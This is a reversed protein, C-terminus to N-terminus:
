SQGAGTWTEGEEQWAALLRARDAAVLAAHLEDCDGELFRDLTYATWDIRHDTVRNQPFNYTRIRDNRDGTGIAERRAAARERERRQREQEYLRARLWRLAKERNALQSREDQCTVVLGTPRHTIRVASETKNVHQGGAGGARFTEIELDDPRIIIEAEEAEPLVAVTAASTHIRGQAETIPVRQVRHGGSEWRLLGYAGIGEATTGSVHYIAERVGGVDGPQVSLAVMRLGRRGVWLHYMRVLDGAFLCAEDGGTGARVELICDREGDDASNAIIALVAEVLRREEQRKSAIEARAEAGLEPDSLLREAGAIDALLRRREAWPEMIRSWRAHQRLLRQYEASGISEPEALRATLRLWREYLRDLAELIETDSAM